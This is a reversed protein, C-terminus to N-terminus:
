HPTEGLEMCKAVLWLVQNKKVVLYYEMTYKYWVEKQWEEMSLCRPQSGMKPLLAIEQVHQGQKRQSYVWCQSRPIM